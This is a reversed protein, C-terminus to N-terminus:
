WIRVRRDPDTYLGDSETVGFAEHFTDLNTVVANCRLDPPSHPDTTLRRIAEADRTVARWVQAWGFLVRQEGTLGDIVPPEFGEHAIAYAKLAITLGGLDGINEGVTLSGNVKHDPLGAPSLGDYQDILM